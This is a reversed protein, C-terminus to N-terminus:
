PACGKILGLARLAARAETFDTIDFDLVKSLAQEQAWMKVFADAAASAHREMPSQRCIYKGRKPTSNSDSM